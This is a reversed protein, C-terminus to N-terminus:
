SVPNGFWCVWTWFCQTAELSVWGKTRGINILHTGSGSVGSSKTTFLLSGGWLPEAAKFFSKIQGSFHNKPEIKAGDKWSKIMMFNWTWFIIKFDISIDASNKSWFYDQIYKSICFTRGINRLSQYWVERRNNLLNM